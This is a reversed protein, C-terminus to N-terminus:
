LPWCTHLKSSSSNEFVCNVFEVGTDWPAKSIGVNACTGPVATRVSIWPRCCGPLWSWICKDYGSDHAARYQEKTAFVGQYLSCVATAQSYPVKGAEHVLCLVNKRTLMTWDSKVEALDPSYLCHESMRCQKVTESFSFSCCERAATCLSACHLLSKSSTVTGAVHRENDRAIFRSVGRDDYGSGLSSLGCHGVSCFYAVLHLVYM